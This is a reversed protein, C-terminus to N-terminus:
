YDEKVKMDMGGWEWTGCLLSSTISTRTPSDLMIIEVEMWKGAFSTIKM